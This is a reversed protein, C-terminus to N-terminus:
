FLEKLRSALDMMETVELSEVGAIATYAANLVKKLTELGAPTLHYQNVGAAELVGKNRLSLLIADYYSPATYPSRINLLASSVPNPEFTPVAFLISIEAPTLGTTICTIQLSSEYLHSMAHDAAEIAPFLEKINM